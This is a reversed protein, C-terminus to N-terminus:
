EFRMSWSSFWNLKLVDGLGGRDPEEVWPRVWAPYKRVQGGARMQEGAFVDGSEAVSIM